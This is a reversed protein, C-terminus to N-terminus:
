YYIEIKTLTMTCANFGGAIGGAYHERETKFRFGETPDYVVRLTRLQGKSSGGGSNDSYSGWGGILSGASTYSTPDYTSDFNMTLEVPSTPKSSSATNDKFYNSVVFVGSSSSSRVRVDLNSFYFRVNHEGTLNPNVINTYESVISTTTPSPTSVTLTGEWVTHWDESPPAQWVIGHSNEIKIVKKNNHIIQKVNDLNISM